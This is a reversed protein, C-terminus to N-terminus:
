ELLDQLYNPIEGGSLSDWFETFTGSMKSLCHELIDPLKCKYICMYVSLCKLARAYTFGERPNSERQLKTIFTMNLFVEGSPEWSM